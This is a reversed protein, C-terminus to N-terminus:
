RATILLPTGFKGYISVIGFSVDLEGRPWITQEGSYMTSHAMRHYRKSEVTCNNFTVQGMEPSFLPMYLRHMTLDLESRVLPVLWCM